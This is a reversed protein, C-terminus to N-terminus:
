RTMSKRIDKPLQHLKPQFAEKSTTADYDTSQKDDTTNMNSKFKSAGIANGFNTGSNGDAYNRSELRRQHSTLVQSPNVNSM